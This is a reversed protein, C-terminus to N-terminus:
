EEKDFHDIKAKITTLFKGTTEYPIRLTDLYKKFEDVNEMISLVLYGDKEFVSFETNTLPRMSVFYYIVEADGIWSDGYKPRISAINIM